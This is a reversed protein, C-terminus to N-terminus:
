MKRLPIPSFDGKKHREIREIHTQNHKNMSEDTIVYRYESCNSDNCTYLSKKNHLIIKNIDSKKIPIKNKLECIRV